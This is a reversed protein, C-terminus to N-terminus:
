LESHVTMQMIMTIMLNRNSRTRWWWWRWWQWTWWPLLADSLHQHHRARHQKPFSGWSVRHDDDGFAPILHKAHSSAPTSKMKSTKCMNRELLTWSCQSSHTTMNFKWISYSFSHSLDKQQIRCTPFAPYVLSLWGWATDCCRHIAPNHLVQAFTGVKAAWSLGASCPILFSTATLPMPAHSWKAWHPRYIKQLRSKSIWTNYTSLADKTICIYIHIYIYVSIVPPIDM